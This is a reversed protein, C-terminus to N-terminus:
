SSSSRDSGSSCVGPASPDPTKEALILERKFGPATESTARATWWSTPSVVEPTTKKLGAKRFVGGSTTEKSMDMKLIAPPVLTLDGRREILTLLLAPDLKADQRFKFVVVPGERDLSEVGIRDAVVRIRAYQALNTFSKPPPGYRDRLEDLFSTIEDLNRASALRRYATLRQNM